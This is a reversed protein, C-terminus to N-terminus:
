FKLLEAYMVNLLFIGVMYILLLVRAVYKPSIAHIILPVMLIEVFGFLENIRCALVALFNYVGLCVYSM